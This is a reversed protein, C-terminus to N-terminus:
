IYDVNLDVPYKSSNACSWLSYKIVTKTFLREEFLVLKQM